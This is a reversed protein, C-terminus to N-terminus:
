NTFEKENSKGEASSSTYTIYVTWSGKAPLEIASFTTTKCTTSTPNVLTDTTKRLESSGNTFVYVCSGGEEAINTVMGSASVKENFVGANTLLVNAERKGTEQNSAPLVPKDTQDNKLKSDPNKELGETAKKETDTRKMNTIYEGPQYTEDTSSFPPLDAKWAFLLYGAIAFIIAVIVILYKKQMPRTNIKM